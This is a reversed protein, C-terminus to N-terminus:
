WSSTALGLHERDLYSRDRAAHPPDGWHSILACRAGDVGGLVEEFADLARRLQARARRARVSHPEAARLAREILELTYHVDTIGREVDDLCDGAETASAEDTELACRTFVEPLRVDEFDEDRDVALELAEPAVTMM